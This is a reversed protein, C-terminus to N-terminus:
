KIWSVGVENKNIKWKPNFTTIEQNTLNISHVALRQNILNLVADDVNFKATVFEGVKIIEKEKMQQFGKIGASGGNTYFNNRCATYTVADYEVIAKNEKGYSNIFVNSVLTIEKPAILPQGKSKNGVGVKVVPGACNIFTNYAVVASDAAYYGNIESNELGCMIVVGAKLAVKESSEVNTVYNSFVTQNSNIIRLGGSTNRGTKGNIYNGYVFCRQGHRLVMAGDNAIFTNFRYINDCSKNSIIEPEQRQDEFYNYEIINFGRTFSTKSDGIRMDEGGNDTPMTRYGFYNHHIHHHTSPAADSGAVFDKGTKYRVVLYPGQNTKGTFYCYSVENYLGQLSMWNNNVSVDNPTYNIIACNTIHSHNANQTFSLVDTKDLRSTGDFLFGELQLYNGDVVINSAGKFVVKGATEAKLYIKENRNGGNIPKFSIKTDNYTGNKWVIIDGAKVKQLAINLEEISSVSFESANAFVSYCSFLIILFQRM